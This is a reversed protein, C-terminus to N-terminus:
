FSDFLYFGAKVCVLFGDLFRVGALGLGFGHVKIFILQQRLGRREDLKLDSPFKVECFYSILHM